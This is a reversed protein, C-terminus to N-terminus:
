SFFAFALLFVLGADGLVLLRGAGGVGGEVGGVQGAVGVGAAEGPAADRELMHDLGALGLGLLRRRLLSGPLAGGRPRM